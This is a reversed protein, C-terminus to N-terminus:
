RMSHGLAVSTAITARMDQRRTRHYRHLRSSPIWARLMLVRAMVSPFRYPLQVDSNCSGGNPAALFAPHSGNLWEDNIPGHLAGIMNRRGSSPMDMKRLLGPCLIVPKEILRATRPFGAKCLKPNDPRKCHTLPVREGKDNLTHVHHQKMEQVRQAHGVLDAHLWAQGESLVAGRSAPETCPEAREHEERANLQQFRAWVYSPTSVLQLSDAHEPWDSERAKQRAAWGEKDAYVERCAHAKYNLYKQVIAINGKAIDM